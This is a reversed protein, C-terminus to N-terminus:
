RGVLPLSCCVVMGSDVADHSYCRTLKSYSLPFATPYFEADSANAREVEFFCRGRDNFPFNAPRKRLYQQQIVPEITRGSPSIEPRRSSTLSQTIGAREETSQERSSERGLNSATTGAGQM